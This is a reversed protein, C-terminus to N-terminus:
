ASLLPDDWHLSIKRKSDSRNSYMKALKTLLSFLNLLFIKGDYTGKDARSIDAPTITSDRYM